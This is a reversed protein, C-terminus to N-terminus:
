ETLDRWRSKDLVGRDISALVQEHLVRYALLSASITFNVAAAESRGILTLLTCGPLKEASAALDDFGRQSATRRLRCKAATAHQSTQAGCKASHSLHM